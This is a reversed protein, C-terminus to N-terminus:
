ALKLIKFPRNMDRSASRTAEAIDRRGTLRIAGPSTVQQSFQQHRQRQDTVNQGNPRPETV